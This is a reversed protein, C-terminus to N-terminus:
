GKPLTVHFSSGFGVASEVAVKGGLLDTAKRVTALGIGTGPYEDDSHLRQFINFIRVHHEEPIGIGNDRVTITVSEPGDEWSVTVAPPVDPKRYTLANELLNSFIQQLLAKHGIVVPLDTPITLTGGAEEVRPHFERDLADFVQQTPVALHQFGQRGLRSYTLLDDILHGMRESAQVINDLYHQGEENLNAKHRRALIESFGSIARLPARLDHSVSYSFSELDRYAVDLEASRRALLANTEQMEEYVRVKNMAIVARRAIAALFRTDNNSYPRPQADFAYLVGMAHDEFALPFGVYARVDLATAPSGAPFPDHGADEVIVPQHHEIMWRSAEGGCHIATIDMTCKRGDMSMAGFSFEKTKESWRLICAGKGAPLFEEALLVISDLVGQLEFPQNIAVSIAAIADRRQYAEELERTREKVRQELAVNLQEREEEAKKRDTIDTLVAVRATLGKYVLDHSCAVVTLFSGDRKRHHWEGVNAYGHLGAAVTAIRQKELDPYLDTLIMGGIESSSYGYHHLFADNVALMRMSSREYILMPAPNQEFLTRYRTESEVLAVEAKKRATIDRAVAIAEEYRGADDKIYKSSIELWKTSGDKCLREIEMVHSYESPLTGLRIREQDERLIDELVKRSEPTYMSGLPQALYEEPTFGLVREVSPSVFLINLDRDFLLIIDSAEDVILRYFADRRRLITEKRRTETMDQHLSLIYEKGGLDIKEAELLIIADEGSKRRITVETPPLAGSLRGLSTSQEVAAQGIMENHAFGYIKLFAPNVDLYLGTTLDALAMGIPSKRFVTSFRAESERLLDQARKQETIDIHSGLVRVAKGHEDRILSAQTLIWRYSGDRHRVRLETNYQPQAGSLFDNLLRMTPHFDDPHLRSEWEGFANPIEHDEYGLQKKWEPSLYLRNTVIDWDWLGVNAAAVAHRLSDYERIRLDIHPATDSM